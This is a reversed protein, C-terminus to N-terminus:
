ESTVSTSFRLCTSFTVFYKNDSLINLILNEEYIHQIIQTFM